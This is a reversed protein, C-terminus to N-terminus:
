LTEIFGYAAAFVGDVRAQADASDWDMAVLDVGGFDIRVTERIFDRVERYLDNAASASIAGRDICDGLEQLFREAVYHTVFRRVIDEAMGRDIRDLAAFGSGAVDLREFVEEWTLIAAQRAVADDLLAGDPALRDVLENLLADADRGVFTILGIAAAAAAFGGGVGAGLFGGLRRATARGASARRSAARSGGSAQVYARLARAPGGTSTGKAWRSTLSKPQSWPLGPAPPSPPAPQDSAGDPPLDPVANPATSDDTPEAWPPLLNSVGKPGGYSSSTGM